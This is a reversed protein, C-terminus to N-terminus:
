LSGPFPKYNKKNKLILLNLFQELFSFSFFQNDNLRFGHEPHYIQKVTVVSAWFFNWDTAEPSNDNKKCSNDFGIKSLFCFEAFKSLFFRIFFLKSGESAVRQWGRKEFNSILVSKEFDTKYKATTTTSSM